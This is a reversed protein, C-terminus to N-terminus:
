YWALMGRLATTKAWLEGNEDTFRYRLDPAYIGLYGDKDQTSLLYEIYEGAKALHMSDNLLIANRIYGDRWNSQTESNWWLYQPDFGETINGVSKPKTENTLREEGYIKDDMLDPVLEDLHGAFGAMDKGMQEKIWGAPKIEGFGLLQFQQNVPQTVKFAEGIEKKGEVSTQAPTLIATFSMIITLIHKM